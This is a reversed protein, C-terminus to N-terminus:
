PKVGTPEVHCNWCTPQVGMYNHCRDCFEAKAQHCDLCTGTLSIKYTEGSSSRYSRSGRRIAQDRWQNLLQMHSSRMFEVSEVCHEGHAPPALEPADGHSGGAWGYWAPLTVMAGFVALGTIIKAGDYM